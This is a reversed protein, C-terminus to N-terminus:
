TTADDRGTTNLPIAEQNTGQDSEHNTRHNTDQNTGQYGGADRERQRRWLLGGIVIVIVILGGIVAGIVAGSDSNEQHGDDKPESDNLTVYDQKVQSQLKPVLCTYKGADEETVDTLKLSINGKEMEHHFLSTRHKFNQDQDDLHDERSRYTHVHKTGQKWEVTLTTVDFPPELHCPLIADDGVSVTIPQHSGIVESGLSLQISAEKQVSPLVCQYEGADSVKVGFIKMSVNGTMLEDMFLRTRSYYSPNQREFMLRGDQHVHIYKPDLGPKTWLVTWSDANVPPELHCPLIVDDGIQAVIPQRSCILESEATSSLASVSSFVLLLFILEM